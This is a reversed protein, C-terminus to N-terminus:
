MWYIVNNTMGTFYDVVMWFGMSLFQGAVLGIFFPKGRQYLRLGGYRLILGKILWALFVSVLLRDTMWMSSIPLSLPHVPWWLFRQKALLLGGMLLGGWVRLIWGLWDPGAANHLNCSIFNFPYHVLGTYYGSLNIAGYRYGLTLQIWISGVASLLIAVLMAWLLLRRRSHIREAIKLANACAAMVFIRLEGAWVFTYGLATVGVPGLAEVGFGTVMFNGPNIPTRTIFFGGETVMRTLGLFIVFAVFLVVGAAWLPFGSQWLWWWMFLSGGLVLLVASRYSLVEDADEVAADGRFAKRGVAKLHDRGMWLGFFVFVILAGINQNALIPVIVWEMHAGQPVGLINLAGEQTKALLNFVWIGLSIDQSLFYTFGLAAFSISPKLTATDRFVSVVGHLEIKPVTPYYTHLGNVMGVAFPITM